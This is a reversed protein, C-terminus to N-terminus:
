SEFIVKGEYTVILCDVNNGSGSPNAISYFHESDESDDLDCMLDSLFDYDEERKEELFAVLEEVTEIPIQLSSHIEGLDFDQKQVCYVTGYGDDMNRQFTIPEKMIISKNM